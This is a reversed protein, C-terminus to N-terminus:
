GKIDGLGAVEQHTDGLTQGVGEEVLRSHMVQGNLEPVCRAKNSVGIDVITVAGVGGAELELGFDDFGRATFRLRGGLGLIGGCCDPGIIAVLGIKGVIAVFDLIASSVPLRISSAAGTAGRAPRRPVTTRLTEVLVLGLMVAFDMAPACRVQEFARSRRTRCGQARAPQRDDASRPAGYDEHRRQGAAM